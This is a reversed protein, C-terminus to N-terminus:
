SSICKPNALLDTLGACMWTQGQTADARNLTAVYAEPHSLLCICQLCKSICFCILSLPM